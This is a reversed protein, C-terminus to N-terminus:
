CDREETCLQANVRGPSGSARRRRMWVRNPGAHQLKPRLPQHHARKGRETTGQLVAGPCIGSGDRDVPEQTGAGSRRFLEQCGSRSKFRHLLRHSSPFSVSMVALETCQNPLCLCVMSRRNYVKKLGLYRDIISAHGGRKRPPNQFKVRTLNLRDHPRPLRMQM